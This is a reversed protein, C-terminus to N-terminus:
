KPESSDHVCNLQTKLSNKQMQAKKQMEPSSM